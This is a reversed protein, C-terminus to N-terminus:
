PRAKVLYTGIPFVIGEDDVYERLAAAADHILAERAAASMRGIPAALPSSVTERRVFETVSPYRVVAIDLRLRIERFGSESVLSRVEDATWSSFPSRMIKEADEGAHRGLVQALGVYAPSHAIPRCILVGLRGDSALVRRMERLASLPDPMFQLAQQSVISDFAAGAFPM